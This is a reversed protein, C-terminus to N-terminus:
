NHRLRDEEDRNAEYEIAQKLYSIHKSVWESVYQNQHTILPTLALLDSELYPVLSGSWSKSSLNASIEGGLDKLHGFDELLKIFIKSPTKKDEVIQFVNICRAVFYPGITPHQYCWDLILQLPLNCFISEQQNSLSDEREFIQQIWYRQMSSAVVIAQSFLAWIEKPSKSIMLNVIKKIYSWIDSHDLGNSTANLIQNTISISFDVGESDLLNTVVTAWQHLDRKGKNGKEHLPINSVIYKMPDKVRLFRDNKGYCYMFLVDLAAWKGRDSYEALKICFNGVDAESITESSNSYLINTAMAEPIQNAQILGLLMNLSTATIDGTKILDPFFRHLRKDTHFRELYKSWKAPNLKFLKSLLGNLLTPNPIVQELLVLIAKDLFEYAEASDQMLSYGFVFACRQNGSLLLALYQEVKSLDNSLDAGLKEANINAIDIYEGAENQKHEWPPSVVMVLLQAEIDNAEPTLRKFWRGLADLGEQPVNNLDYEQIHVLSTLASPWYPGHKAVVHEIVRDITSIRGRSFIGRINRGIVDRAENGIEPTYDTLLLLLEFCSDWYDFIEQWIKPKWEVLPPKTGQYEAGITRSGGHNSIANGLAKLIVRDVDIDHRDIAANLVSLRQSPEAETGSLWIRFLQSFIGTANNSWTENEASSLQLLCYASKMFLSKHFCLKELAWVLNRRVDGKINKLEDKHLDKVAIYLAESTAEPNVNVFSRFLRSGRVSLIAEAQGFPGNKGCLAETLDKVEPLFDLKEIQDCFSGILSEPISDILDSQTEPRSRRWWQAALRIALPKPVLQAYRGRRDILGRETFRKVCDHFDELTIDQLKSAIYQYEYSVESDFGFRDFLACGKLIIEDRENVRGNAGWLLKNAISDDTLSGFEKEENLRAEALLVAMQPYGQAFRVIRDLEPIREAYIPALIQRIEGDTFPQLTIETTSSVRELNFDLSLLSLLSDTRQVEKQLQVHLENDCNDVVLVGSLGLNVFDSVLGAINSSNAADIYVVLKQLLENQKFLEFATRTKGLGSLGNIRACYKPELLREKLESMQLTRAPVEVFAHTNFDRNKSWSEFSKLGREIPRGIWNLVSTIAVLYSNVWNAIQSADYIQLDVKDANPFALEALKEHMRTIRQQKQRVNLKQTTFLVYAGGQEFAELVMAKITGDSAVLENACAAKTMTTAKNQFLTFRNPIFSTREIGGSWKIRGDEGGDGVRINLAVDVASQALGSKIAEANLIVNLLQTLQVDNLQTIHDAEVNFPITM